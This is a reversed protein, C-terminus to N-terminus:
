VSKRDPGVAGTRVAPEHFGEAEVTPTRGANCRRGRPCTTSRKQKPFASCASFNRALNPSSRNSGFSGPRPALQARHYLWDAMSVSCCVVFRPTPPEFGDQSALLILSKAPRLM